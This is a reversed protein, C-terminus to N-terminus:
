KINAISKRNPRLRIKLKPQFLFFSDLIGLIYFLPSLLLMAVTPLLYRRKSFRCAIFRILTTYGELTYFVYNVAIINFGIILLVKWFGEATQYSGSFALTVIIIPFFVISWPRPIFMHIGTFTHGYELKFVTKAFGHTVVHTLIAEVAGTVIVIAVLINGAYFKALGIANSSLNLFSFADLIKDAFHLVEHELTYGFIQESFVSLILFNAFIDALIILFLRLQHPMHREAIYGHLVGVLGTISLVVFGEMMPNYQSKLPLLIFPSLAMIFALPISAVADEYKITFIAIPVPILFLFYHTTKTVVLLFYAALTILTVLATDIVFHKTFLKKM